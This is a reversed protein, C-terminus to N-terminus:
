RRGRPSRPKPSLYERILIRLTSAENRCVQELAGAQFSYWLGPHGPNGSEFRKASEETQLPAGELRSALDGLLKAISYRDRNTM